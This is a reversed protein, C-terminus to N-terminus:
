PDFCRTKICELTLIYRSVVCQRRCYEAGYEILSADLIEQPFYGVRTSM